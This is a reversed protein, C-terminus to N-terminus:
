SIIPIEFFQPQLDAVGIDLIAVSGKKGSMPRSATGPNIFLTKGHRESCTRHTHGFVVVDPQIGKRLLRYSYYEISGVDHVIHLLIGNLDFSLSAPYKQVLPWGDVNGHIASVPCITELETIVDENGIDGAHCIHKVENFCEFVTAPLVSHTDSIIGIQM